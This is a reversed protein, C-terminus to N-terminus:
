KKVLFAAVALIMLSGIVFLTPYMISRATEPAHVAMKLLSVTEEDSLEDM